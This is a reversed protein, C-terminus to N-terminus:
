FECLIFLCLSLMYTLFNCPSLSLYPHSLLSLAKKFFFFKLFQNQTQTNPNSKKFIDFPSLPLPSTALNLVFPTVLKVTRNRPRLKWQNTPEYPDLSCHQGWASEEGTFGVRGGCAERKRQMNSLDSGRRGRTALM